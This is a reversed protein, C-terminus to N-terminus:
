YLIIYNMLILINMKVKRYLSIAVSIPGKLSSIIKISKRLLQAFKDKIYLNM